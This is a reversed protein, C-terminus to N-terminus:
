SNVRVEHVRFGRPARLVKCAWTARPELVALSAPRDPNVLHVVQDPLVQSAM